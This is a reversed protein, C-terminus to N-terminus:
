RYPPCTGPNLKFEGFQRDSYQGAFTDAPKTRTINLVVGDGEARVVGRGPARWNDTFTFALSGDAARRAPSPATSRVIQGNDPMYNSFAVLTRGAEETIDVDVGLKGLKTRRTDLGEDLKQLSEIVEQEDSEGTGIDTRVCYHGPRPTSPQALALPAAAAILVVAFVSKM